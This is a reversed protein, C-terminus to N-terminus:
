CGRQMRWRCRQAGLRGTSWWKRCCFDGSIETKIVRTVPLFWWMTSLQFFRHLFHTWFWRMKADSSNWGFHTLKAGIQLTSLLKNFILQMYMCSAVPCESVSIQSIGTEPMLTKKQSKQLAVSNTFNPTEPCLTLNPDNQTCNWCLKRNYHTPSNSFHVILSM